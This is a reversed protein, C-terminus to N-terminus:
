AGAFRALLLIRVSEPPVASVLHAIERGLGEVYDLAAFVHHGQEVAATIAQAVHQLGLPGDPQRVGAIWGERELQSAVEYALRTKGAGGPGCLLKVLRTGPRTDRAWDLLAALEPRPHFPVVQHSPDLWWSPPANPPPMSRGLPDTRGFIRRTFDARRTAVNWWRSGPPHAEANLEMAKAFHEAVLDSPVIWGGGSVNDDATAKVLGCVRGTGDLVLSGSMGPSVRGDKLGVLPPGSRGVVELSMSHLAVGVPTEGTFGISFVPTMPAPGSPSCWVMPHDATQALTLLALDPAAYTNGAGPEYPILRMAALDFGTDHWRVKIQDPRWGHVVHACTLVQRPAIFFGSGAFGGGALVQVACEEALPALSQIVPSLDDAKM